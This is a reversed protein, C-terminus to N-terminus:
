QKNCCQASRKTAATDAQRTTLKALTTRGVKAKKSGSGIYLLAGFNKVQHNQSTDLKRAAQLAEMVIGPEFNVQPRGTSLLNNSKQQKKNSGHAPGPNAATPTIAVATCSATCV